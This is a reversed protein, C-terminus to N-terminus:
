EDGHPLTSGRLLALADAGVILDVDELPWLAARTLLLGGGRVPAWVELAWRGGDDFHLVRGTPTLESLWRDAVFSQASRRAFRVRLAQGGLAPPTFAQPFAAEVPANEAGIRSAIRVAVGNQSAIASGATSHRGGLPRSFDSQDM